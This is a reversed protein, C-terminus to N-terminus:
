RSNAAIHQKILPLDCAHGIGILYQPTVSQGRDKVLYKFGIDILKPYLPIPEKRHLVLLCQGQQLQTLSTLIKRMPEPAELESVDLIIPTM